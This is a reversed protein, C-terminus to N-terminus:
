SNKILAALKEGVIQAARIAEEVTNGASGIELLLAHSALEQNYSANRLCVPRALTSSVSGLRDNLRLALSLNSQWTPYSTGNCDSGVIAMVQATPQETGEALTRILSGNADLIGDRHVDIVYQLTPYKEKYRQICDAARAYSSQLSGDEGHYEECLIAPVGNQNLEACLVRGVATVNRAPDDSYIAQGLSGTLYSSGSPAYAENAHTHLILVVPGAKPDFTIPMGEPDKRLVEIQPTYVTENQIYGAGGIQTGTFTKTAIPIADAPMSVSSGQGDEQEPTGTPAQSEGETEKEVDTPEDQNFISGLGKWGDGDKRTGLVGSVAFAALLISACILFAFFRRSARKVPSLMKVPEKVPALLKPEEM